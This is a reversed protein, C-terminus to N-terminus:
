KLELDRRVQAKIFDITNSQIKIPKELILQAMATAEKGDGIRRYLSYIKYLPTFRSPCMFSAKRYHSEAEIHENKDLYIGDKDYIYVEYINLYDGIYIVKGDFVLRM